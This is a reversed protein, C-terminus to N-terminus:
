RRTKTCHFDRYRVREAVRRNCGGGFYPTKTTGQYFLTRSIQRLAPPFNPFSSYFIEVGQAKLDEHEMYGKDNDETRIKGNM